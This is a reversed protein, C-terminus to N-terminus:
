VPHGHRDVRCEVRNGVKGSFCAFAYCGVESEVFVVYVTDRRRSLNLLPGCKVIADLDGTTPVAVKNM